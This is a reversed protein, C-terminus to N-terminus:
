TSASLGDVTFFKCVLRERYVVVFWEEEGHYADRMNEHVM